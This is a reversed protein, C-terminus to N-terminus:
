YETLNTMLNANSSSQMECTFQKARSTSLDHKETSSHHHLKLSPQVSASNNHLM